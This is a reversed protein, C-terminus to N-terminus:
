RSDTLLSSALAKKESKVPAGRDFKALPVKKGIYDEWHDLGGYNQVIAILKLAKAFQKKDLM